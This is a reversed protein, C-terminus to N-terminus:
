RWRGSADLERFVEDLIGLGELAAERDITLAPQLRVHPTYTMALLGRRLCDGYLQRAVGADLPERTARDRVLELGILLGAGRVDGVFPYREQM